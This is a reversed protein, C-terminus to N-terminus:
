KNVNLNKIFHGLSDTFIRSGKLNTNLTSMYYERSEAIKMGEFQVFNIKYDDAVQRIKRIIEKRNPQYPLAEKLVPSEFLWVETGKQQALEILKRFYKERLANWEFLYGHPYLDIFEELHNDWKVEFPPEYGDAFHPLKRGAIFHKMGQLAEFNIKNSYYAYKMFPLRVWKYYAPDCENLVTDVVPDGVFAAFHYTNFVNYQPDMSEPTVYYFLYKPAKNNKLYFYLHLYNDAFDSHSLALNYSKMGTIKDLAAPAIMWFPECPGHILVDADIKAKQVYAAKLNCNQRLAFDYLKELGFLVM